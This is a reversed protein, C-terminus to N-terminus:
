REHIRAEAQHISNRLQQGLASQESVHELANRFHQSSLEYEMRRFHINGLSIHADINEPEAAVSAQYHGIAAALDGTRECVLAMNFRMGAHHEPYEPNELVQQYHRLADQPQGIALLSNGLNIHAGAYDPAIKMAAQHHEIAEDIRGADYLALGIHVHADLSLPNTSAWQSHFTIEDKFYDCRQWSVAACLAAALIAITAAFRALRKGQLSSMWLAALAATSVLALLVYREAFKAEQDLLNATPALTLLGWGVWFMTLRRSEANLRVTFVLLGVFVAAPVFTRFPAYWVERPPEYHLQAFPAFMTQVSYLLSWFPGAPHELVALRYESGGFLTWRISFYAVVPVAVSTYRLAWRKLDRGPGDETLRLVDALVFLAPIVVAQEKSFLALAFCILALVHGARGGRIFGYVSAIVLCGPLLTERGSAIPYVCSSAIPHLGCVSAAWLAPWFRIQFVPLRLLLYVLLTALGALAANALHFCAADDGHLTKQLLLTSRTVPRYYPLGPFHRENFIQVVDAVSAPAPQKLIVELDDYIFGNWMARSYLCMILVVALAVAGPHTESDQKDQQSQLSGARRSDPM